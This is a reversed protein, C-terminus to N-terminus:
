FLEEIKLKEIIYTHKKYFDTNVDSKLWNKYCLKLYM